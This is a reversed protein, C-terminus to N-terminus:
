IIIEETTIKNNLWKPTIPIRRTETVSLWDHYWKKLEALQEYTLTDYWVKGRNIIPFCIREREKRLAIIIEDGKLIKM